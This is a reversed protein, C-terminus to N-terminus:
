RPIKQLGVVIGSKALKIIISKIDIKSVSSPYEIWIRKSEQPNIAKRYLDWETDIETQYMNGGYSIAYCRDKYYDTEIPYPYDNFLDIGILNSPLPDFFAYSYISSDVKKKGEEDKYRTIYTQKEENNWELKFANEPPGIVVLREGYFDPNKEAEEYTELVKEIEEYVKKEREEPSVYFDEEGRIGVIKWENNEKVVKFADNEGSVIGLITWWVYFSEKNIQEKEYRYMELFEKTTAPDQFLKKIIPDEEIVQEIGVRGLVAIVEKDGESIKDSLCEMVKEKNDLVLGEYFSRITNEPTSLDFFSQIEQETTASREKCPDSEGTDNYAAVKYWYTTGPNLFSDTYSTTNADLVVIRVYDGTRQRKRYVYFGKEVRANDKWFLDIQQPSVAIATLGFPAYPVPPPAVCGSLMLVLAAIALLILERRKTVMALITCVQRM